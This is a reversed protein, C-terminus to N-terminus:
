RRYRRSRHSRRRRSGRSRRRRSGRSRRSRSGGMKEGPQYMFSSAPTEFQMTDMQQKRTENKTERIGDRGVVDEVAGDDVAHAALEDQKAAEAAAKLNRLRITERAKELLSKTYSQVMNEARAARIIKRRDAVIPDAATMFRDIADKQGSAPLPEKGPREVADKAKRYGDFRNCYARSLINRLGKLPRPVLHTSSSKDDQKTGPVIEKTFCISKMRKTLGAFRGPQIASEGDGMGKSPDVRFVRMKDDVTNAVHRNEWKAPM